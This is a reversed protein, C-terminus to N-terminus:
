WQSYLAHAYNQLEISMLASADLDSRRRMKIICRWVESNVPDSGRQYRTGRSGPLQLVRAMNGSNYPGYTNQLASHKLRAEDWSSPTEARRRM